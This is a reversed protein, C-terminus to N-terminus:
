WKDYKKNKLSKSLENEGLWGTAAELAEALAEVALILSLCVYFFLKKM